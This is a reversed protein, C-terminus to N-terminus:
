WGDTWAGQPGGHILFAVPYKKSPDFDAPKVLFGHVRDGLAGTFEFDEPAAFEIESLRGALDAAPGHQKFDGSTTNLTFLVNPSQMSNSSLLLLDDALSVVQSVSHDNTLAEVEETELDIAFLKERGYEEAIAYLTKGNPAVLLQSPSRDWHSAIPIRESLAKSYLIIQNRDSEYQPVHM